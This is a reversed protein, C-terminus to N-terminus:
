DDNKAMFLNTGFPKSGFENLDVQRVGDAYKM